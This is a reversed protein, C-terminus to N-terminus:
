VCDMELLFNPQCVAGVSRPKIEALLHARIMDPGGQYAKDCYGCNKKERIRKDTELFTLIGQNNEM